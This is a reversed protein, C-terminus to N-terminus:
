RYDFPKIISSNHPPPPEHIVALSVKASASNKYHIQNPFAFYFFGIITLLHRGANSSPLLDIYPLRIVDGAPSITLKYVGSKNGSRMLGKASVGKKRKESRCPSV